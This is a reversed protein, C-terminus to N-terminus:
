SLKTESDQTSALVAVRFSRDFRSSLCHFDRYWKSGVRCLYGVFRNGHSGRFVTKPFVIIEADKPLYKWNEPKSYFDFACANMSDLKQARALFEEGDLISEKEEFVSVTTLREPDVMGCPVHQIVPNDRDAWSPIELQGNCNIFSKVLELAQQLLALVGGIDLIGRLYRQRLESERRAYTDVQEPTPKQKQDNTVATATM